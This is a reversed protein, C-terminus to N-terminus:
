SKKNNTKITDVKKGTDLDYLDVNNSNKKFDVYVCKEALDSFYIEDTVPHRTFKM